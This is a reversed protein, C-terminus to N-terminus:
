SGGISTLFEEFLVQGSRFVKFDSCSNGVERDGDHGQRPIGVM